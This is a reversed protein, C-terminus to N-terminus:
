LQAITPGNIRAIKCASLFDSRDLNVPDSVNTFKRRLFIMHFLSTLLSPIHYQVIKQINEGIELFAAKCKKKGIM